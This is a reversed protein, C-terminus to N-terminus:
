LIYPILYKTTKRYERYEDGLAAALVGEEMRIRYRFASGVLVLIVLVAVWSRLALGVGTIIMLAGTYSPHRVLRYPGARVVRQGKQIGVSQSFFGGLVAIAYQRVAIGALMIASGAYSVWGPLIAIGLGAFFFAIVISLLIGGIILFRSGRDRKEVKTGRRRLIPVVVSGVVESLIWLGAAIDYFFAATESPFLM